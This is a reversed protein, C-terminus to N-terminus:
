WESATCSVDPALGIAPSPPAFAEDDEDHDGDDNGPFSDPDLSTAKDVEAVNTFNGTSQVIARINLVASDGLALTGVNWDGTAPDYAGNSDDSLYAYRSNLQDRVVVGTATGTPISIEQNTLTITFNVEDGPTM